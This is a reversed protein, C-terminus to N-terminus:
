GEFTDVRGTHCLAKTEAMLARDGQPLADHEKLIVIRPLFLM